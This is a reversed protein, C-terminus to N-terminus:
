PRHRPTPGGVGCCSRRWSRRRAFRSRPRGGWYHASEGKGSRRYRDELTSAEYPELKVVMAAAQPISAGMAHLVTMTTMAQSKRRREAQKRRPSAKGSGVLGLAEDLTKAKGHLYISIGYWLWRAVHHPTATGMELSMAACILADIRDGPVSAPDIDDFDSLVPDSSPVAEGAQGSWIVLELALDNISMPPVNHPGGRVLVPTGVGVGKRQSM